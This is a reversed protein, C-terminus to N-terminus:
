GRTLRAGSSSSSPAYRATPSQANAFSIRFRMPFPYRQCVISCMSLTTRRSDSQSQRTSHILLSNINTSIPLVPFPSPSPSSFTPLTPRSPISPKWSSIAQRPPSTSPDLPTIPNSPSSPSTGIRPSCPPSPTSDRTRSRYSPLLTPKPHNPLQENRPQSPPSHRQKTTRTEQHSITKSWIRIRTITRRTQSSGRTAVPDSPSSSKKRAAM